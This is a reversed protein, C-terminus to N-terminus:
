PGTSQGTLTAVGLSHAEFAAFVEGLSSNEDIEASLDAVDLAYLRFEYFNSQSGPGGYGFDGLWNECQVAGPVDAPMADHDVDQPLESTDSSINWIASHDFDITIDHFFICFSQTGGPAGVWSLPPSENGGGAHHVHPIGEGEAFASSMLAFEVAGTSESGSSSGGDSSSGGSSDAVGSSGGGSSSSEAGGSTSSEGPGPTSGTVTTSASSEGSGSSTGGDDGGTTTCASVGVVLSASLALAYGLGQVVRLSRLLRM